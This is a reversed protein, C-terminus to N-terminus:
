IMKVLITKPVVGIFFSVIDVYGNAAAISVDTANITAGHKVLSTAYDLKGSWSTSYLVSNGSSNTSNADAGAELLYQFVLPDDGAVVRSLISDGSETKIDLNAGGDVLSRVVEINDDRTAYMLATFGASDASNIDAERELLYKVTDIDGKSSAVMLPTTQAEGLWTLPKNTDAGKSILYKVSPLQSSTLAYLFLEQMGEKEIEKGKLLYKLLDVSGGEISIHLLKDESEDTLKEENIKEIFEKFIELHNNYAAVDLVGWENENLVNIDAGNEILYNVIEQQGNEVAIM